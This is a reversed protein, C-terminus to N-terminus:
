TSPPTQRAGDAGEISDINFAILNHGPSQLQLHRRLDANEKELRHMRAREEDREKMLSEMKKKRATEAYVTSIERRRLRSLLAHQEETLDLAIAQRQQKYKLSSGRLIDQPILKFLARERKSYAGKKRRKPTQKHPPSPTM